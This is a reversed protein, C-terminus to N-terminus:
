YLLELGCRKESSSRDDILDRLILNVFSFLEM